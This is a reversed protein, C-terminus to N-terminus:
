GAGLNIAELIEKRKAELADSLAKEVDCPQAPKSLVIADKPFEIEDLRRDKAPYGSIFVVATEERMSTFLEALKVGNMNPMIVDTLLLDIDGEYKDQVSLADDADIATLARMGLDELIQQNLVLLDAEDEVILVTKGNLGSPKKDDINQKETKLAELSRPLYFSISTGIDEGTKLDVKGGLQKVIGYIMPLGLGTGKGQAKTTFFPEFARSAVDESMGTGNDTIKLEVYGNSQGVEERIVEDEGLTIDITIVGGDPMADRSNICTNLLIQWIIDRDCSVYVAEKPLNIDVKVLPMLLPKLLVEHDTIAKNLDCGGEVDFKQRSFALLRRTLSAGRRSAELINDIMAYASNKEEVHKQLLRSYGEIISLINNFDHAVGGALQGLAEMKQAHGITINKLQTM